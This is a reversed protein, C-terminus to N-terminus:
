GARGPLDVWFRSGGGPNEAYGIRGGMLDVLRATIALGLGSGPVAAEAEADLRDFERFLRQRQAEPIGPGTDAVEIRVWGAESAALLLTVRGAQTYKVANGLLNLLVQRLRLPDLVAARPAGPAVHLELGLGKAAAQQRILDICGELLDPLPTPAPRLEIQGAEIRSFDLIGSIMDLLHRGAAQMAELHQRQSDRLGEDLSLVQAFGLIVNLPTRLEHSMSSLFRSKARSAAEAADRAEALERERADRELELRRRETIDRAVTVYGDPRGTVPDRTVRVTGEMWSEGGPADPRLVRYTLTQQEAHGERLRTMFAQVDGRDEPHMDSLSRRGILEEPRRGMVKLAAPSVYLRTLNLDLRSVMDGSNEALMRFGAESERAAARAAGERRLARRLTLTLLVLGAALGLTVLSEIVANRRWPGEIQEVPMGVLVMLPWTGVRGTAYLRERGDVPSTGIFIDEPGAIARQTVPSQSLDHGLYAERFPVRMLLVGDTRGIALLGGPGLSLGGFLERFYDLHIAAVAVGAFSGDPNTRRRSLMISWVQTEQGKQPGSVYLGLDPSDRQVRFYDRDSLNM